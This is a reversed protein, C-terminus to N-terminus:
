AGTKPIILVNDKQCYVNLYHKQCPELSSATNVIGRRGIVGDLFM